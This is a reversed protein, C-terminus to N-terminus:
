AQVKYEFYPVGTESSWVKSEMGQQKAFEELGSLITGAKLRYEGQAWDAPQVSIAKSIQGSWVSKVRVKLGQDRFFRKLLPSIEYNDENLRSVAEMLKRMENM